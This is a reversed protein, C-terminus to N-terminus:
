QQLDVLNASKVPASASSPSSLRGTFAPSTFLAAAALGILAAGFWYRVDHLASMPNRRGIPVGPVDSLEM